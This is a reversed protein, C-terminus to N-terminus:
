EMEKLVEPLSMWYTVFEIPIQNQRQFSYKGSSRVDFQAVDRYEEQLPQYICKMRRGSPYHQYILVAEGDNPLRDKVSVWEMIGHLKNVVRDDSM